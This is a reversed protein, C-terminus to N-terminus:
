RHLHRGEGGTGQGNSPSGAGGRHVTRQVSLARHATKWWVHLYESRLKKYVARDPPELLTQEAIYDYVDNNDGDDDEDSRPVCDHLYRDYRNLRHQFDEGAWPALLAFLKHQRLLEDLVDLERDDESAKTRKFTEIM